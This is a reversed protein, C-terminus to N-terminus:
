GPARKLPLVTDDKESSSAPTGTQQQQIALQANLRGVFEGMQYTLADAMASMLRVDSETLRINFETM